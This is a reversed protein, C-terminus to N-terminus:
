KSNVLWDVGFARSKTAGSCPDNHFAPAIRVECVGEGPGHSSADLHKVDLDGDPHRVIYIGCLDLLKVSLLV